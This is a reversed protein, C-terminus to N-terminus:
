YQNDEVIYHATLSLCYMLLHHSTMHSCCVAVSQLLDEVIYHATLSLCYMLSSLWNHSTGEDRVPSVCLSLHLTGRLSVYHSISHTEGTLSLIYEEYTCVIEWEEYTCQLLLTSWIHKATTHVRWIYEEYEESSSYKMDRVRWIYESSSSYKM